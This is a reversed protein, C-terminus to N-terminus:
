QINQSILCFGLSEHVYEVNRFSLRGGENRLSLICCELLTLRVYPFLVDDDFDFIKLDVQLPLYFYVFVYLVCDLSM